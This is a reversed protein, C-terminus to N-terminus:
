KKPPKVTIRTPVPPAAHQTPPNVNAQKRGDRQPEPPRPISLPTSKKTNM